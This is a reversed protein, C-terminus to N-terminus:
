RSPVPTSGAPYPLEEALTEVLSDIRARSPLGEAFYSEYFSHNLHDRDARGGTDNNVNGRLVGPFVVRAFNIVVDDKATVHESAQNALRSAPTAVGVVAISDACPPRRSSVEQVASNVFLNGQSHAVVIVREGGQLDAEYRVVHDGPAEHLDENWFERWGSALAQRIEEVQSSTISRNSQTITRWVQRIREYPLRALLWHLMQRPRPRGGEALQLEAFKQRIVEVLDGAGDGQNYALRFVFTSGPYRAELDSKYAQELDGRDLQAAPQDGFIGNSFYVSTAVGNASGVLCNALALSPMAALLALPALLRRM